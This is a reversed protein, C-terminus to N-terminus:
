SRRDPAPKAEFEAGALAHLCEQNLIQVLHNRPQAILRRRILQSFTRSVTEVTLGLYDAIDARSMPLPISRTGDTRLRIDTLFAAVRHLATRRGLLLIANESLELARSLAREDEASDGWRIRKVEASESVVEATAKYTAQDTGFGEGPFFFGTLQRRGDAFLYTTRVVGSLVEYRFPTPDGQRYIVAGKPARSIRSADNERCPMTNGHYNVATGRRSTHRTDARSSM